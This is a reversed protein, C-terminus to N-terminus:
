PFGLTAQVVRPKLILGPSILKVILLVTSQFTPSDIATAEVLKLWLSDSDLTMVAM